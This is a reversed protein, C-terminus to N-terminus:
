IKGRGVGIQGLVGQVIEKITNETVIAIEIKVEHVLDSIIEQGLHRAVAEALKEIEVDTM